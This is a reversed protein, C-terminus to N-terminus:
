KGLSLRQEIDSAGAPAQQLLAGNVFFTPTGTVRLDVRAFDKAGIIKYRNVPEALALDVDADTLGLQKAIFEIADPQKAQIWQQQTAYVTTIAKFAGEIPLSRILLMAAIDLDNLVYERFTFRLVDVATFHRRILPYTKNFFNACHRCTPSAYVICQNDTPNTNDSIEPLADPQQPLLQARAAQALALSIGCALLPAQSLAERRSLPTIHTM